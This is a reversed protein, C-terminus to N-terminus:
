AIRFATITSDKSNGSSNFKIAGSGSHTSNAVSIRLNGAPSALYGSLTIVGPNSSAGGNATAIITTGDWLKAPFIATGGSDIVTVTGSAFWTGSSGQAISPGDYYTNASSLTVDGTLSSTIPSSTFPLDATVLSRFTPIAAGGSTPGAFIKNASQTSNIAANSFFNLGYNGNADTWVEATSSIPMVYSSGVAGGQIADSSQPILTIAGGQANANFNFSNSVSTSLPLTLNIATTSVLNNGANSAAVTTNSSVKVTTGITTGGTPYVPDLTEILTGSVTFATFKLNVSGSYYFAACGNADLTIPNSIPTTLGADSYCTVPTTTGTQYVNLTGSAAPLGQYLGYYKAIAFGSM